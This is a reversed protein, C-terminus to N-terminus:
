VGAGKAAFSRCWPDFTGPHDEMQLLVLSAQGIRTNNAAISAAIDSAQLVSAPIGQLETAMTAWLSGTAADSAIPHVQDAMDQKPAAADGSTTGSPTEGLDAKVPQVADVANRKKIM